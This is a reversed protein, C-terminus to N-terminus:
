LSAATSQAVPASTPTQAATRQQQEQALQSAVAMWSAVPVQSVVKSILQPLLGALLTKKWGWRWPKIQVVTAGVLLAAAVLCWPHKQATPKLLSNGAQLAVLSAVRLPHQAWWGELADKVITAGPLSMLSQYWDSRGGEARASEPLSRQALAERLRQRSCLLRQLPTTLEAKEAPNM